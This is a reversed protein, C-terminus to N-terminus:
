HENENKRSKQSYESPQKSTVLQVSSYRNASAAAYTNASVAALPVGVEEMGDLRCVNDGEAFTLMICRQSIGTVKTRM